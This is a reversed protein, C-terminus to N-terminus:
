DNDDADVSKITDLLADLHQQKEFDEDFKFTLDPTYRSPIAQSIAKRLAPKYLVLTPMLERFHSEGKATYFLVICMGKNASLKVRSVFIDHLTPEDLAIKMLWQSLERQLLSEKKAKKVLHHAPKRNM